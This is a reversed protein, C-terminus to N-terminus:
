NMKHHMRRHKRTKMHRPTRMAKTDATPAKVEPQSTQTVKSQGTVPNAKVAPASVAIPAAVVLALLLSQAFKNM